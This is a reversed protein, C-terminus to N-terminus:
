LHTSLVYSRGKSGPTYPFRVRTLSIFARTWVTGNDIFVLCSASTCICDLLRYSIVVLIAHLKLGNRAHQVFSFDAILQVRGCIPIQKVLHEAQSTHRAGQVENELRFGAQLSPRCM